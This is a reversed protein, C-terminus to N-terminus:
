NSAFNPRQEIQEFFKSCHESARARLIKAIARMSPNQNFNARNRLIDYIMFFGSRECQACLINNIGKLEVGPPPPPSYLM